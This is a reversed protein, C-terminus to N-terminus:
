NRSLMPVFASLCRLCNPPSNDSISQSLGPLMSSEIWNDEYEGTKQIKLSSVSIMRCASPVSYTERSGLLVCLSVGKNPRKRRGKEQGDGFGATGM